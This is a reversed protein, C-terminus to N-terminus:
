ILGERRLTELHEDYLRDAVPVERDYWKNWENEKDGGLLLIAVRRPDFAYLIRTTGTRLERMHHHDSTKITDAVPRTLGPGRQELLEVIADVDDAEPDDLDDYWAKFEDTAEVEWPVYATYGKHELSCM